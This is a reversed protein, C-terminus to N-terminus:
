NSHHIELLLFALIEVVFRVFRVFFFVSVACIVCYFQGCLLTVIKDGSPATKREEEHAKHAKHNFKKRAKRLADLGCHLEAHRAVV